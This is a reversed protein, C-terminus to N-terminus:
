KKEILQDVKTMLATLQEQQAAIKKEQAITYLTLEEVKELLAKNITAVEFGKEQAVQAASPVNPLHKNTKIFDELESLPSLEYDAEFVYDPWNDVSQIKMGTALAKGEVALNYGVPAITNGIALRAGKVALVNENELVIRADYDAEATNAVNNSFDIYPTDGTRLEIRHNTGDSGFRSHFNAQGNKGRTIFEKDSRVNGNVHFREVPNNQFVGINGNAAMKMLMRQNAFKKGPISTYGRFILDNGEQRQLFLATADSDANQSDFLLYPSIDGGETAKLLLGLSNSPLEARFPQAYMETTTFVAIAALALVLKSNITFQKTSRLISKM